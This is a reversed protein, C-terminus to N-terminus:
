AFRQPAADTEGFYLKAESAPSFRIFPWHRLGLQMLESETERVFRTTQDLVRKPPNPDDDVILWITVAPDGTSDAGFELKFSRVSAPLDRKNIVQRIKNAEEVTGGGSLDSMKKAKKWLIERNGIGQSRWTAEPTNRGISGSINRGSM